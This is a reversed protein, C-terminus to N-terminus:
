FTESVVSDRRVCMHFGCRPLAPCSPRRRWRSVACGPSSGPEGEDGGCGPSGRPPSPPAAARRAAPPGRGAGARPLHPHSPLLRACTCLQRGGAGRVAPVHAAAPLAPPRLGSGTPSAGPGGRGTPAALTTARRPWPRAGRAGRNAPARATSRSPPASRPRGSAPRPTGSGSGTSGCCPATCADAAPPRARRPAASRWGTLARPAPPPPGPGCPRAHAPARGCAAPPPPGRAKTRGPRPASPPGPRLARGGSGGKNPIGRRVPPNGPSARSLGAASPGDGGGM